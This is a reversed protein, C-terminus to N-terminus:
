GGHPEGFQQLLTWALTAICGCWFWRDYALPRVTGDMHMGLWAGICFAALVMVCRNLAFAAGVAQPFPGVAGTQGCPHPLGHGPMVLTLPQVIAFLSQVGGRAICGRVGYRTLWSFRLAIVAAGQVTRWVVLMFMSPALMTGIGAPVYAALGRRMIPRRNFRNSLPGFVRQSCDFALLLARLTLQVHAMQAMQPSFGTTRAPLAPLYLDTTM